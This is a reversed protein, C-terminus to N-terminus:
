YSFLQHKNFTLSYKGSLVVDGTPESGAQPLAIPQVFDNLELPTELVHIAIDNPAVGRYM